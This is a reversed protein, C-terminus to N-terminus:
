FYFIFSILQAFHDEIASITLEIATAIDRNFFPLGPGVWGADMTVPWGRGVSETAPASVQAQGQITALLACLLLAKRPM